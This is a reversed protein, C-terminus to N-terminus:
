CTRPDKGKGQIPPPPPAPLLPDNSDTEHFLDGYMNIADIFARKAEEYEDKAKSYVEHAQWSAAAAAGLDDRASGFRMAKKRMTLEMEAIRSQKGIQDSM